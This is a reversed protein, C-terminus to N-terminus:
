KKKTKYDRKGPCMRSNVDLELFRRVLLSQNIRKFSKKRGKNEISKRYLKYSVIKSAAGVMRQKKLEKPSVIRSFEQLEKQNGISQKKKELHSTLIESFILKKRVPSPVKINGCLNKVKTSPSPTSMLKIKTQLRQYKKKYKQALRRQTDERKKAKLLDLYVKTRSLIKKKRGVEKRSSGRRSLLAMASDNTPHDEIANEIKKKERCRRTREKTQRRIKRAERPTLDSVKKWLGKEKKEKKYKKDYERKAALQEGSFKKRRERQRERNYARIEEISKKKKKVAEMLTSSQSFFAHSM